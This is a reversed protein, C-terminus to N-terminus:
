KENIFYISYDPIQQNYLYAIGIEKNNMNFIPSVYDNNFMLFYQKYKDFKYQKLLKISENLLSKDKFDLLMYFIYKNENIKYFEVKKDSYSIFLVFGDGFLCNLQIIGQTIGSLYNISEEKILIFNYYFCFQKNQFRKPVVSIQISSNKKLKNNVNSLENKFGQDSILCNFIEKNSLNQFKSLAEKIKNKIINNYYLNNLHSNELYKNFWDLNLLYYNEIPSNNDLPIDIKLNIRQSDIMIYILNEIEQQNKLMEKNNGDNIINNLNNNNDGFGPNNINQNFKSNVKKEYISPKGRKNEQHLYQNIDNDENNNKNQNNLKNNSKEQINPTANNRKIENYNKNMINNNFGRDNFERSYPEM